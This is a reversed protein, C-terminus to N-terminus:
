KNGAFHFVGEKDIFYRGNDGLIVRYSQGDWWRMREIGKNDIFPVVEKTLTGDAQLIKNAIFKALDDRDINLEKSLQGGLGKGKSELYKEAKEGVKTTIYEDVIIVGETIGGIGIFGLAALITNRHKKIFDRM